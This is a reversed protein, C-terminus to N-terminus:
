CYLQHPESSVARSYRLRLATEKKRFSNEVVYSHYLIIGQVYLYPENLFPWSQKYGINFDGMQPLFQEFKVCGQIM